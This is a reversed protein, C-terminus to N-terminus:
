YEMGGNESIIEDQTKEGLEIETFVDNLGGSATMVTDAITYREIDLEPTLYIKKM